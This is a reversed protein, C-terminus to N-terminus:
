KKSRDCKCPKYKNGLSFEIDSFYSYKGLITGRLSYVQVAPERPQEVDKWYMIGIVMEKAKNVAIIEIYEVPKELIWGHKRADGLMEYKDGVKVQSCQDAFLYSSTLFGILIVIHRM